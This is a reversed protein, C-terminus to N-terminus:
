QFDFLIPEQTLSHYPAEGFDADIDNGEIFSKKM